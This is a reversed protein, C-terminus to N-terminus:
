NLFLFLVNQEQSLWYKVWCSRRKREKRRKRITRTKGEEERELAAHVAVNCQIYIRFASTWPCDGPHRSRLAM